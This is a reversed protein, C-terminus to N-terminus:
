SACRSSRCTSGCCTWPRSRRSRPCTAARVGHGRGARRGPRQEGLGLHRHGARLPPDGPGDVALGAGAAQRGRHRQRLPPQGPLARGRVAAHECRAAPLGPHHGVEQERRPRHLGPGPPQLRQPGPALRALQPRLQAVRHAAALPHGRHGEAVQRAPQVDLRHHPHVGRLLQVRRAPRDPPLGGALGPVPARLADGDGPRRARPGRRRAADRGDVGQGHGGDRRGPPQVRDRGARLRPVDGHQPGDRRAPVDGLVRTAEATAAGPAPVEVAYDRFDPLILDRLLLGGNAHPNASM